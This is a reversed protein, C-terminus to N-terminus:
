GHFHVLATITNPWCFVQESYQVDAQPGLSTKSVLEASPQSFVQEIYQVCMARLFIRRGPPFINQWLRSNAPWFTAARRGAPM